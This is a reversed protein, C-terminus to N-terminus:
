FRSHSAVTHTFFSKIM